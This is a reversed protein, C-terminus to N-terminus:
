RAGDCQNIKTSVLELDQEILAELYEQQNMHLNALRIKLNKFTNPTVRVGLHRVTSKINIKEKM